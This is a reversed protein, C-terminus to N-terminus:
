NGSLRKDLNISYSETLCMSAACYRCIGDSPTAKFVAEVTKKTTADVYRGKFSANKFLSCETGAKTAKPSASPSPRVRMATEVPRKVRRCNGRRRFKTSMTFTQTCWVYGDNSVYVGMIVAQHKMNVLNARHPPSEIFQQMCMKAPDSGKPGLACHNKAVNEGSFFSGCGLNKTNLNQHYIRKKKFMDKSHNIGNGLQRRTGATFMKKINQSKRYENAYKLMMLSMCAGDNLACPGGSTCGRPMRVSLHPIVLDIVQIKSDLSKTLDIDLISLERAEAVYIMQNDLHFAITVAFATVLIIPLSAFNM